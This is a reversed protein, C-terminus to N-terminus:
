RRTKRRRKGGRKSKKSPRFQEVPRRIQEVPRRIQEVHDKFEQLAKEYRYWDYQREIMRIEAEKTPIIVREYEHSKKYVEKYPGSTRAASSLEQLSKEKLIELEKEAELLRKSASEMEEKSPKMSTPRQLHYRGTEGYSDFIDPDIARAEAQPDAFLYAM